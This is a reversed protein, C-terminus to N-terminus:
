FEANKLARMFKEEGKLIVGKNIIELIIKQKSKLNNIFDKFPIILPNIPKTRVKSIENCFLNVKDAKDTVFLVDVDNFEKKTLISGFLIIIEAQNFKEIEDGYIKATSSLERKNNRLILKCIDVTDPNNLNLKYYISSKLDIIKTINEKKLGHIIEHASGVSININRALQNVNFGPKEINKLLFEIIKLTNKTINMKVSYKNM